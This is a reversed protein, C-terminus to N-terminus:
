QRIVETKTIDIANKPEHVNEDSTLWIKTNEDFNCFTCPNVFQWKCKPCFTQDCLGYYECSECYVPPPVSAEALVNMFFLMASRWYRDRMPQKTTHALSHCISYRIHRYYAGSIDKVRPTLAIVFVGYDGYWIYASTWDKMDNNANNDFLGVAIPWKGKLNLWRPDKKYNDNSECTKWLITLVKVVEQAFLTETAYWEQKEEETMNQFFGRKRDTIEDQSGPVWFNTNNDFLTLRQEPMLLSPDLVNPMRKNKLQEYTFESQQICDDYISYPTAQADLRKLCDTIGKKSLAKCGYPNSSPTLSSPTLV